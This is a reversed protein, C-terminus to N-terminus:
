FFLTHETTLNKINPSDSHYSLSFLYVIFMFLVVEVKKIVGITELNKHNSCPSTKLGLRECVQQDPRVKLTNAFVRRSKM